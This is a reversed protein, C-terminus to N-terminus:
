RQSLSRVQCQPNWKQKVLNWPSDVEFFTESEVHWFTKSVIQRALYGMFHLCNWLPWIIDLLLMKNWNWIFLNCLEVYNLLTSNCNTSPEHVANSSSCGLLEFLKYHHRNGHILYNTVQLREHGWPFLVIVPIYALLLPQFYIHVQM